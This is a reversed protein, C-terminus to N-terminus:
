APLGDRRAPVCGRTLPVFQATSVHRGIPAVRLIDHRGLVSDEVMLEALAFLTLCCTARRRGPRSESAHSPSAIRTQWFQSGNAGTVTTAGLGYM